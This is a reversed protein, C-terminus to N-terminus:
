QAEPHGIDEASSQEKGWQDRLEPTVEVHFGKGTQTVSNGGRVCLLKCAPGNM